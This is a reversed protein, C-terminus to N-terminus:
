LIYKKKADFFKIKVKTSVLFIDDKFETICQIKNNAM